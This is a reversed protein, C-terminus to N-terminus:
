AGAARRLFYEREDFGWPAQEYGPLGHVLASSLAWCFRRAQSSSWQPHECSQYEYCHINKLVTVPDIPGAIAQLHYSSIQEPTFDNPGPLTEAPEDPYRFSVSAVNEAWLMSGVADATDMTLVQWDQQNQPDMWRLPTYRIRHLGATVLLDIHTKSVIWASM